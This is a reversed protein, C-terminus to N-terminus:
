VCGSLVLLKRAGLLREYCHFFAEVDHLFIRTRAIKESDFEVEEFVDMLENIVENFEGLADGHELDDVARGSLWYPPLLGIEVPMPVAWELDILSIINWEDDVLINSQHLDTLTLFFPGSRYERSIFRPLIARM